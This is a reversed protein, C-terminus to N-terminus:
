VKGQSHKYERKLWYKYKNFYQGSNSLEKPLRYNNLEECYEYWKENCWLRFPSVKM